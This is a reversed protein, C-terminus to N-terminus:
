QARRFNRLMERPSIGFRRRFARSFYLPDAFGTARAVAGVNMATTALLERARALRLATRYAVPRM